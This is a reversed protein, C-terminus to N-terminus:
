SLINLVELTALQLSLGAPIWHKQYVKSSFTRGKGWRIVGAQRWLLLHVFAIQV